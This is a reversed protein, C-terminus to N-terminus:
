LSYIDNIIVKITALELKAQTTDQQETAKILRHISENLGEYEGEDGLLQLKWQQNDYLTKLNNAQEVLFSWEAFELHEEITSIHDNFYSHGTVKSCGTLLLLLVGILILKRKLM